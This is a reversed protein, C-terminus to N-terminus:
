ASGAGVKEKAEKKAKPPKGPPPGLKERGVLEVVATEAGDGPRRGLRVIRLYGGARGAM